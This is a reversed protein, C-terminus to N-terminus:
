ETRLYKLSWSSVIHVFNNRSMVSFFSASYYIVARVAKLHNKENPSDGEVIRSVSFRILCRWHNLIWIIEFSLHMVIQTFLCCVKWVWKQFYQKCKTYWLFFPCHFHSELLTECGWWTLNLTLDPICSFLSLVQSWYLNEVSNKEQCSYKFCHYLRLIPQPYTSKSNVLVDINFHEIKKKKFLSNLVSRWHNRRNSTTVLKFTHFFNIIERFKLIVSYLGM